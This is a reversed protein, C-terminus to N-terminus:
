NSAKPALSPALSRIASCINSDSGTAQTASLRVFTAFHQAANSDKVASATESLIPPGNVGLVDQDSTWDVALDFSSASAAIAGSLVYSTRNVMYIQGQALGSINMTYGPQGDNDWDQWGPTSGSAKQSADPLETTGNAYYSETASMVEWVKDFAVKCGGSAATSTGKNGTYSINAMMAPWAKPFDANGGAASLARVNEGCNLGKTITVQTGSQSIEEYYWEHAAQQVGLADTVTRLAVLWRGTLDCPGSPGAAAGADGVVTEGSGGDGPAAPDSSGSGGLSPALADIGGDDDPGYDGPAVYDPCGALTAIAAALGIWGRNRM